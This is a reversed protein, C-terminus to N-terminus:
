RRRELVARVSRLRGPLRTARPVRVRPVHVATWGAARAQAVDARPDDGVHVIASGPVGERRVVEAFIGGAHKTAGLDASTYVEDVPVRGLVTALITRVDGASYWTDSVAVVRLGRVRAADIEALLGDHPRLHAADAELEAARMQATERADLGAATAVSRTMATLTAEGGAGEIRVARYASDHATWRLQVLARAPLGLQAAARRAGEAMRFSETTADRLVLTDFVDTSVVQVGPRALAAAFQALPGSM